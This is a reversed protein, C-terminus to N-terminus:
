ISKRGLDKQKQPHIQENWQKLLEERHKEILDGLRRETKGDLAPRGTRLTKPYVLCFDLHTATSTQIWIKINLGRQLDKLNFHPPENINEATYMELAFADLRFAKLAAM